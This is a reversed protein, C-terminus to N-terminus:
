EELDKLLDALEPDIFLNGTTGKKRKVVKYGIKLGEIGDTKELEIPECEFADKVHEHTAESIVINGYASEQLIKSIYTAEGLAAFEKRDANGVNGLVANGTHIGIGYFLRQEEPLVEHLAFLDYIISFAARVARVAHDEQPNLQTNFLGTVADGMYKDVIGEYLNIADSAVSLYQNIIEMLTEPQLRESFSTFGRVDAFIATIEREQSGVNVDDISRINKVLATPLYRGVEALQAERRKQETLDDIVMAIGHGVGQVDHLISTTINWYHTEGNILPEAEILVPQGQEQVQKLSEHFTTDMDPLIDNISQGMANDFGVITQAAHNYATIQQQQDTTIVGSVISEFINEMLDRMESVQALQARVGEFLRANEIAVAAQNAFATLLELENKQFLGALIRNDCYVVGIIEGRVQLPVALISRLAFGVISQKQQYREDQSANSTLVPQGSTAVENVITKSVIFDNPNRSGSDPSTELQEKDLGRAVRFQDMEGTERDKLVVYGREAGTLQIVTDMVQNLVEDTDLSSAILATTDALARLTRLEVSTNVMQKSITDMRSRLTRLTKLTGQPLNMGRRRLIEGQSQLLEILDDIQQMLQRVHEQSTSADDETGPVNFKDTKDISM